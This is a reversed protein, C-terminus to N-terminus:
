VIEKFWWGDSPQVIGLTISTLGDLKTKDTSSMLGNSSTTALATSARSTDIPHVHDIRAIEDISGVSQVGNMQVNTATAGYNKNFATGKSSITPEAGINSATLARSALGTVIGDTVTINSYVNAGTLAVANDYASHTHGSAAFSSPGYTSNAILKGTTGSFVPFNGTTASAPGVVAGDINTQIAVWDTNLNGTGARDVVAIVLDGVECVDGAYTGATIVKYTWGASHTLPLTTVTGGTGITGKFQMADNAGLLNDIYAKVADARPIATTAGTLTTEVSYGTGLADGTTVSWIPINGVVTASGLKKVQADNTVNALDVDIKTVTLAHTHSTATVSNTTSSSITSPTGLAVSGSNTITTFNMGNGAAVSTVTGLNATAGNAVNLMTRLQAVTLDLPDATAATNNGKVTMTAM